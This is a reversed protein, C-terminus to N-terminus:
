SPCASFSSRRGHGIVYQSEPPSSTNEVGVSVWKEERRMTRETQDSRIQDTGMASEAAEDAAQCPDRDPVMRNGGRALKVGKVM